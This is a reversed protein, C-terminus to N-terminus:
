GSEAQPPSAPPPHGRCFILRFIAAIRLPSRMWISHGRVACVVTVISELKVPAVVAASLPPERHDARHYAPKFNQDTQPPNHDSDPGKLCFRVQRGLQVAHRSSLIDQDSFVTFHHRPQRSGLHGIERLDICGNRLQLGQPLANGQTTQRPFFQPILPASSNAMRRPKGSAVLSWASKAAAFRTPTMVSGQYGVSSLPCQFAEVRLPVFHISLPSIM